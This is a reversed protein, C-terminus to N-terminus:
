QVFLPPDGGAVLGPGDGRGADPPGPGGPAPAPGPEAGGGEAAASGPAPGGAREAGGGGHGHGARGLEEVQRRLEEIQRATEDGLLGEIEALDHLVARATREDGKQVCRAFLNQLKALHRRRRRKRHTANEEALLRDAQAVYREVTRKSVGKGGEPVAWPPEGAAEADAVYRRIQFPMAGDCIVRALDEVRARITARTAKM